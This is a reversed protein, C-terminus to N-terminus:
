IQMCITCADKCAFVTQVLLGTENKQIVESVNPQNGSLSHKDLLYFSMGSDCLTESIGHPIAM